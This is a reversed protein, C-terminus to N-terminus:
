GRSGRKRGSRVVYRDTNRSRDAQGARRDPAERDTLQPHELLRHLTDDALEECGTARLTTGDTGTLRTGGASAYVHLEARRTGVGGTSARGFRHDEFDSRSVWRLDGASSFLRGGRPAAIEKVIPRLAAVEAM